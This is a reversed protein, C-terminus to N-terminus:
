PVTAGLRPTPACDRRSEGLLVPSLGLSLWGEWFNLCGPWIVKACSTSLLNALVRGMALLAINHISALVEICTAPYRVPRFEQRLARVRLALVLSCYTAPLRGIKRSPKRAIDVHILQLRREGFDRLCM